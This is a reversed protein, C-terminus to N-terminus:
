QVALTPFTSRYVCNTNTLCSWQNIQLRTLTVLSSVVGNVTVILFICFVYFWFSVSLFYFFSFVYSLLTHVHLITQTVLKFRVCLSGWTSEVQLLFSNWSYKRPPLPLWHVPNVLKCGEHSLLRSIQSGWGGSNRLAEGPMYNSQKIKVLKFSPDM